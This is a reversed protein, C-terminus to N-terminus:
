SEEHRKREGTTALRATIIRVIGVRETHAVVFLNGQSSYGITIFREESKSPDPDDFTASLPDSFVTLAEEFSVRHKLLNTKAKQPDWEFVM